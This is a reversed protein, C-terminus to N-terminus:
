QSLAAQLKPLLVEWEGPTIMLGCAIYVAMFAIGVGIVVWRRNRKVGTRRGLMWLCIMYFFFNLIIYNRPGELASRTLAETTQTGMNEVLTKVAHSLTGNLVAIPLLTVSTFRLSDIYKRDRLVFHMVIALLAIIVFGIVAGATNTFFRELNENSTQLIGKLAEAANILFAPFEARFLDVTKDDAIGYAKGFMYGPIFIELVRAWRALPTTYNNAM